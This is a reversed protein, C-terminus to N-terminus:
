GGHPQLEGDRRGGGPLWQAHGHVGPRRRRLDQEGGGADGVGGEERHRLERHQLHRRLQWARECPEADGLHHLPQRRCDRGSHACLYGPVHDAPLFGTLTGTFAPDSDGYTKSAAAATVAAPRPTITFLATDATITYNGLVAQPSLTASITYPGGAVGEGATRTYSATVQDAPLFGTLTGSFVPDGDGYVKSAAAATVAAPRPTITFLATGATITYNGLVAQPNLTASITYPSAGVSEGATRAYTAQVNDGAVFGTLTGSFAPDSDGYVKSAAAVTVAASRPTITFGATGTTIAYNGLVAQPNLTASITYPSAGVSEGETRAYTAQVNDGAVFGTLTGSFAPESDGYVKSAADVTVTAPRPTITFSATGTTIAYNGLVAQPSLTASITYPSAGVSEGETRTYSATVQDAPLFGTLTGTFAPDVDGYIKSAADPTVSASRPVITFSQDVSTAANYDANGDQSARLTCTGAAVINVTTGTVSCVGTTLSSFAVTLGSSVTASVTFDPDGYTKNALTGFSITQTGKAVNFATSTAETLAPSSSAVLTYGNGAKSIALSPFTAIGGSAAVTTTGSLTGGSPNTGPALTVNRADSTVLNNGGDLIRVTVAPSINAGVSTSSPQQGFALKTAAGASVVLTGNASAADVGDAATVTFAYSGAPTTGNTTFTLTRAPFATGGNATFTGNPSNPSFSSTIGAPTGGSFAVSFSGNVTGNNGRNAQVTYTATNANTNLLPNPSQAGLTVSAIRPADTFTMQARSRSDQATMYFRVGLDHWDPAWQDWYINGLSDATVTLEYDPHTAPDEQILLRVEEGPQWGSGTIVAAEGPYYDDKDTKITAFRYTGAAGADGGAVFVYGNDGVPGGVAGARPAVMDGTGVFQGMGWSYPDPFIAPLFLDSTRVANGGSTGGAVLVGNNHPLLLATHGSRAVSLQTDVVSFTQSFPDFIEASALDTSGNNGGAVLVRGEILATASAGARPQHLNSGVQTLGNNAPDFLEASQLVVGDITVGGLILVKGDALRAAAHDARPQPMLAVLTSTGVTPDFLEVDSSIVGDMRGGAVLVRGDDLLTATHEARAAILTGAPTLSNAIPDLIVVDASPLGDSTLGGAILTRGDALAVAAAGRRADAAFGVSEWTGVPQQPEARVLLGAATVFAVLAAGFGVRLKSHAIM